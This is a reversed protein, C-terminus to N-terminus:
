IQISKHVVGYLGYGRYYKLKCKHISEGEYEDESEPDTNKHIM